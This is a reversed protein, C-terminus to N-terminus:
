TRKPWYYVDSLTIWSKGGNISALWLQRVRGNSLPTWTMRELVHPHTPTSTSGTFVMSKNVLTGAFLEYAGLNDVWTYHWKKDPANFFAFSAGYSSGDDSRFHEQIVCDGYERTVRDTGELKGAGNRVEWSGIWFDFQRHEAATCHLPPSAGASAAAGFGTFLASCLAVSFVRLTIRMM